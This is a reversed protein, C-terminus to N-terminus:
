WYRIRLTKKILLVELILTESSGVQGLRHDAVLSNVGLRLGAVERSIGMSYLGM